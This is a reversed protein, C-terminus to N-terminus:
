DEETARRGILEAIKQELEGPSGEALLTKSRSAGGSVLSIRSKPVGLAKALTEIAAANAAGKDPLARVKVMLSVSGDAAIHLGAVADARSRPTVRLRMELGGAAQRWPTATV